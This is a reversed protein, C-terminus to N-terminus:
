TLGASGSAMFFAAGTVIRYFAFTAINNATLTRSGAAGNALYMTMNGGIVQVTLTGAGTHNIVTVTFDDPYPTNADFTWTHATASTHVFKKGNDDPKFTYSQDLFVQPIGLYGFDAPLGPWRFNRSM